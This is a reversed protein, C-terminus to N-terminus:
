WPASIMFVVFLFLTASPFLLVTLLIRSVMWSM